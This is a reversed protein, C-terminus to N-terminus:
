KGCIEAVKARLAEGRLNKAVIRGEGDVLLLYPIAHFDYLKTMPTKWGQLDSVQGWEIGDDQIAKKWLSGGLLLLRKNALNKKM